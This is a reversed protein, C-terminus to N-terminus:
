YAKHVKEDRESNRCGWFEVVDGMFDNNVKEDDEGKMFFPLAAM